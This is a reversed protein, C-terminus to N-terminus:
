KNIEELAKELKERSIGFSNLQSLFFKSNGFGIGLKEALKERLIKSDNLGTLGYKFLDSKTYEIIFEKYEPKARLIAEKVDKPTANEIGVNTGKLSKGRPLFAHKAGPISDSLDKRIRKGVYDPDTLIIIGRTNSLEKLRVKLKEGYSYGHTQIVDATVAKKVVAEDDRGEVVIIEKIM